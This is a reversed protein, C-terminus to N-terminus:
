EQTAPIYITKYKSIAYDGTATSTLTGNTITEIIDKLHLFNENIDPLDVTVQNAANTQNPELDNKNERTKINLLSVM